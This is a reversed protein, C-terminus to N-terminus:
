SLILGHQRLFQLVKLLPMGLVTFYDGDIREFLQVGQGELHYCGVSSLIADGCAALYSDIYDDSLSRMTLDVKEVVRWIVQGGQAIVVASLLSHRNGSLIQLQKKAGNIDDAKSFIKGNLVLIQDAGVVYADPHVASVELAKMEALADAIDRPKAGQSLMADKLLSEDVFAKQIDFDIGAAAFMEARSKSGSALIINM